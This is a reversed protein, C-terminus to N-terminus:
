KMNLRYETKPVQMPALDAANINGQAVAYAIENEDIYEKTHIFQTLGKEKLYNILAFEDISTKDVVTMSVRNGNSATYELINLDQFLQKIEDKYEKVRKTIDKGQKDLTVCVGVIEELRNQKQTVTDVAEQQKEVIVNKLTKRM